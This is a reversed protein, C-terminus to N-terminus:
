FDKPFVLDNALVLFDIAAITVGTSSMSVHRDDVAWSVAFCSTSTTDVEM